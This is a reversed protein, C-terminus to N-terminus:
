PYLFVILVTIVIKKNIHSNYFNNSNTYINRRNCMNSGDNDVNNCAM